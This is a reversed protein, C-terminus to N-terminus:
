LKKLDEVFYWYSSVGSIKLKICRLKLDNKFIEKLEKASLDVAKHGYLDVAKAYNMGSIATKSIFGKKKLDERIEFRDPYDIYITTIM